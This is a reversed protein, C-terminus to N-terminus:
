ETVKELEAWMIQADEHNDSYYNKRVGVSRFGQKEYLNQAIKNSVRVELTMKEAGMYAATNKLETLLRDGLKRGRFEAKVAINTVHAEDMIMWMGGYGAIEGDCEMVMYKAFHNNTLENYFAGSTWPTTFSEQEIECIIAIDEVVMSRFVLQHDGQIVSKAKAEM